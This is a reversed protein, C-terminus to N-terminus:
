LAGRLLEGLRLLLPKLLLERLELLRLEPM